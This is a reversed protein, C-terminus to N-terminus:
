INFAFDLKERKYSVKVNGGDKLEGFLIEDTLPEKIKEDIIRGIERAGYLDSYGEKAIYEIAKKSLKIVIGRTAMQINLKEIEREM